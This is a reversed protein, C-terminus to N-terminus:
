PVAAAADATSPPILHVGYWIYLRYQGIDPHAGWLSESAAVSSARRRERRGRRKISLLQLLPRCCPALGAGEEAELGDRMGADAGRRAGLQQVTCPLLPQLEVHVEACPDDEVETLPVTCTRLTLRYLVYISPPTNYHM